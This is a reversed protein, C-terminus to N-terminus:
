LVYDHANKKKEQDFYYIKATDNSHRHKSYHRFTMTCMYLISTPFPLQEYEIFFVDFEFFTTHQELNIM